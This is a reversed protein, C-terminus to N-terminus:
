ITSVQYFFQSGKKEGAYEERKTLGQERTLEVLTEGDWDELIRKLTDELRTFTFDKKYMYKTVLGNIAAKWKEDDEYASLFIIPIFLGSISKRERKRLETIFQVGDMKPMRLDSIICSIKNASLNMFSRYKHILKLGEEGNKGWVVEYKDEGWPDKIRSIMEMANKAFEEEDELLMILKKGM